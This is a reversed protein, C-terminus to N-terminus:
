LIKLKANTLRIYWSNANCIEGSVLIKSGKQLISLERYEDKPVECEVARGRYEKDLSLSLFVNGNDQMSASLM